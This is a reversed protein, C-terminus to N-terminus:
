FWDDPMDLATRDLDAILDLLPEVKPLEQRVFFRAAQRKGEYFSGEGHGTALFQELWLWAIVIHGTAELYPTANALAADRDGNSLIGATVMELREVALRLARALSRAEGGTEEARAITRLMRASLQKFNGGEGRIVKRGLLDAAQIGHTGEHIPNLRNDRYHQEVDYERSYGYGGHVQIALSNAALCWQAPWSKAIPTLIELLSEAARREAPDELSVTDDHLRGCYLVLALAGEVYAKQALLMRRVDAHAIIPVQPSSPDRQPGSRGQLRERAYQLSKLYGTYGVAAAAVGVGIRAENMMRFMYTLGQNPEGILYGIAGPAGKPQHAGEGLSLVGNVTGRFGMKHNLGALVLDNREGIAGDEDLLYRPVAFLSIGKVGAPAGALRALVMHVINEAMEHEAGSIWMKTGFLRHCGDEGPEARTTIDALSSGAQPESLCMTGFFRGAVLPPVWRKVQPESGCAILMNAAATTLMAYATTSTNAAHFWANVATTLVLPLQMGGFEEDISMGMLSAESYAALAEGIAPELIVRGDELRPEDVDSSRNHPAFRDTALREALELVDDYLDASQGSYRPRSGLEAIELWEHLLFQLDRRSLIRAALTSANM